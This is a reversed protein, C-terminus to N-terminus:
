KKLVKYVEQTGLDENLQVVGVHDFHYENSELALVSAFQESAYIAGPITINLIELARNIHSGYANNQKTLPNIGYYAPGIHLGLKLDVGQLLGEKQWDFGNVIKKLYFAFEIASRTSSFVSFIKGGWINLFTPQILLEDFNDAIEGWVKHAFYPKKGEEIQNYGVVEAYLLCLIKRSLMDPTRDESEATNPSSDGERYNNHFLDPNINVETEKYPWLNHLSRTGGIARKKDSESLVTLLYPSSNFTSSRLISSGFIVKGQLAFLVDDDLHHERTIFKVSQNRLIANFRETWDDSAFAVSTEIFDNQDFPLSLNVENGVKLM